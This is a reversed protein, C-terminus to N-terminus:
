NCGCGGGTKGAEGGSAGERYTTAENDLKEVPRAGQQMTDDNVFQKQYSKVVECGSAFIIIAAFAFLKLLCKYM